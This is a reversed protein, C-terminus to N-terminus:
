RKYIVGRHDLVQVELTKNKFDVDILARYVGIRYKYYDKGEYHELFRFPDETKLKQLGKKIHDALHADLKNLFDQVDPSLLIKWM